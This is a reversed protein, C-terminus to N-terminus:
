QENYIKISSSIKIAHCSVLEELKGTDLGEDKPVDLPRNSKSYNYIYEMEAALQAVKSTSRSSHSKM